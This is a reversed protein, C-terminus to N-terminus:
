RTLIGDDEYLLLMIDQEEGTASNIYILAEQGYADKCRFEYCLIEENEETPILAKKCALVQLNDALLSQAKKRTLKVDPLNRKSHSSIYAGAELGVARGTDLAISVKILDSYCVVGSQEYAYNITCIGDYVSYYSDKMDTYGLKELFASGREIAEKESIAAEKTNPSSMFSYIYGGKKTVSVFSGELSFSYLPIDTDVDEQRRLSSPKAGLLDAAIEAAEDATIERAKKTLPGEGQDPRDSFPGDYLLTPYDTITQATDNMRSYFDDPLEAESSTLTDAENGFSVAGDSYDNLILTLESSLNKCYEYLKRLNEADKEALPSDGNKSLALTYNGVQSLFKYIEDASSSESNLGALSEKAVAAERSLRNGQKLLTDKSNSYLCKQLDTAISDISECLENVARQNYSDVTLKLRTLRRSTVVSYVSLSLTLFAFLAILSVAGKKSPFKM